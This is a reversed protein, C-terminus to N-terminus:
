TKAKPRILVQCRGGKVEKVEAVFHFGKGICDILQALAKPTLSGAVNKKFNAVVINRGSIKQVSITLIDGVVLSSVIKPVPSNLYTAEMYTRCDSNGATGGSGSEGGGSGSM